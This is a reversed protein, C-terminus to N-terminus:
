YLRWFRKGEEGSILPEKDYNIADIFDMCHTHREMASDVQISEDEIIIEKM